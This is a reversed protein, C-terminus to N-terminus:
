CAQLQWFIDLKKSDCCESYIFSGITDNHAFIEPERLAWTCLYPGYYWILKAGRAYM